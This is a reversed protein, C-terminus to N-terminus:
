FTTKMLLRTLSGDTIKSKMIFEPMSCGKEVPTERPGLTGRFTALTEMVSRSICTYVTAHIDTELCRSPLCMGVVRARSLLIDM